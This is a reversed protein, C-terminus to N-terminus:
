TTWRHPPVGNVDDGGAGSVRSEEFKQALQQAWGQEATAGEGEVFSDGIVLLDKQTTESATQNTIPLRATFLILISTTIATIIGLVKVEFEDRLDKMAQLQSSRVLRADQIEDELQRPVGRRGERM